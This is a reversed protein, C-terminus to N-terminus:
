EAEGSVFKEVVISVSAGRETDLDIGGELGVGAMGPSRHAHCRNGMDHEVFEHGEVRLVGVPDVSIAKDQRLYVGIRM